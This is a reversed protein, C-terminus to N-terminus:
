TRRTASNTADTLAPNIQNKKKLDYIGKVADVDEGLGARDVDPSRETEM